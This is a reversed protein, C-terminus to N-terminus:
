STSSRNNKNKHFMKVEDDTPIKFAKNHQEMLYYVRFVNSDNPNTWVDDGTESDVPFTVHELPDGQPIMFPFSSSNADIIDEFESPFLISFMKELYGSEVEFREHVKPHYCYLCAVILLLSSEKEGEIKKDLERIMFAVRNVLIKIKRPNAPLYDINEIKKIYDMTTQADDCSSLEGLLQSFFISKRSCDAIPLSHIDQCIKELYDSARDQAKRQDDDHFKLEEALIEEIQRRDMGLVVICNKLNLYIKIGELLRYATKPQCRDLDDIFVVLRADKDNDLTQKIVDEL